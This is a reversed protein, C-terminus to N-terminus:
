ETVDKGWPPAQALPAFALPLPNAALRDRQGEAVLDAATRVGASCPGVCATMTLSCGAATVAATVAAALVLLRM